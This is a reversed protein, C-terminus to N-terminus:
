THVSVRHGTYDSFYGLSHQLPWCLGPVLYPPWTTVNKAHTPNGAVKTPVWCVQKYCAFLAIARIQVLFCCVSPNQHNDHFLM